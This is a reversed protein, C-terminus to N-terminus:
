PGCTGLTSTAPGPSGAAWTLGAGPTVQHTVTSLMDRHGWSPAVRTRSPAEQFYSALLLGQPAPGSPPGTPNPGAATGM